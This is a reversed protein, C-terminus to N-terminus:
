QDETKLLFIEINKYGMRKLHRAAVLGDGGNNGPGCVVLIKASNKEQLFIFGVQLVLLIM